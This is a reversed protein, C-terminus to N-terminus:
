KGLCKQPPDGFHNDTLLNLDDELLVPPKAAHLDRQEVLAGESEKLLQSYSLFNIGLCRGFRIVKDIAEINVEKGQDHYLAVVFHESTKCIRTLQDEVYTYDESIHSRQYYNDSDKSDFNWGLHSFGRQYARKLAESQVDQYNILEREYHDIKDLTYTESDECQYGLAKFQLEQASAKVGRGYPFRILRHDQMSFFYNSAENLKRISNDIEQQSENASLTYPDCRFVGEDVKFLRLDHSNHSDGHSGVLHGEEIMRTIYQKQEGKLHHTSIFFTAQVNHNNLVNLIGPTVKPDPGDDFTLHVKKKECQSKLHALKKCYNTNDSAQALLASLILTILM